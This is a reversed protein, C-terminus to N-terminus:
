EAQGGERGLHKSVHMLHGSLGGKGLSVLGLEGLRYKYSLHVLDRIM